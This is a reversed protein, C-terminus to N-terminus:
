LDLHMCAIGPCILAAEFDPDRRDYVTKFGVREYSRQARTNGLLYGIQAKEYGRERGKELIALLLQNVIGHGRFEPVTAVWEVIWRDEPSDPYCTMAIAFRDQMDRLQEDSWGLKQAAEVEAPEIQPVAIAPEFASLAAVQRGDIEAVLFNEYRFFSPAEANSLADIFALRKEDDPIALDLVGKELHSRAAEQMVWVLFHTDGRDAPRITVDTELSSM